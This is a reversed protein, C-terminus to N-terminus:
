SDAHANISVGVSAKDDKSHQHANSLHKGFDGMSNNKHANDPATGGIGANAGSGGPSAANGSDLWSPNAAGALANDIAANQRATTGCANAVGQANGGDAIINEALSAMTAPAGTARMAAGVAAANKYNQGASPEVSAAAAAGDAKSFTASSGAGSSSSTTATNGDGTGGSALGGPAEGPDPGRVGLGTEASIARMQESLSTQPKVMSPPAGSPIGSGGSGTSGANSISGGGTMNKMFDTMSTVGSSAKQSAAAMAMGGAVGGAVASGIDSTAMNTTGSTLAAAISDSKWLLYVLVPFAMIGSMIASIKDGWQFPNGWNFKDMNISVVDIVHAFASAIVGMLIIRYVLSLISKFPAIGQDRLANLGLLSFSLPSLMIILGLELQLMFIKIALYMGAGFVAFLIGVLVNALGPFGIIPAGVVGIGAVIGGCLVMTSTLVAGFTPINSAFASMAGTGIKDILEPGNNLVYICFGLWSLSGILKYAVADIDSGSKLLAINTIVFQVSIFAGLWTLAMPMLKVDTIAKISDLVTTAVTIDSSADAYAGMQFVLLVLASSFVLLNKTKM